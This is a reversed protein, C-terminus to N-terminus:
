NARIRDVVALMNEVIADAGLSDINGAQHYGHPFFFVPSGAAKAAEVDNDSDGVM